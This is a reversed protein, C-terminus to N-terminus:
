CLLIDYSKPPFLENLSPIAFMVHFRIRARVDSFSKVVYSCGAFEEKLVNAGNKDLQKKVNKLEQPSLDPCIFIDVGKFLEKESNM